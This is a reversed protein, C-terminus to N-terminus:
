LCYSGVLANIAEESNPINAGFTLETAKCDLTTHKPSEISQNCISTPQVLSSPANVMESLMLAADFYSIEDRATYHFTGSLRVEGVRQLLKATADMSIPAMKLDTFASIPKGARLADIWHRFLVTKNSVVKGLRVCCANGMDILASEVEAKQRGYETTPSVPDDIQAYPTLGDFVLTTSLFVVFGGINHISQAVRLAGEVNVRRTLRPNVECNATSTIAACIYAVDCASNRWGTQITSIDLFPRSPSAIKVNRTTSVINNGASSLSRSLHSGIAGDGGIILVNM